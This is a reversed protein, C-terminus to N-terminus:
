RRKSWAIAPQEVWRWSAAGAALAGLLGLAAWAPWSDVGIRRLGILLPLHWLFFGYSIRGLAALPAVGLPRGIAPAVAVAAILLAFGLGIPLQGVWGVLENQSPREISVLLWRWGIVLGAGAAAVGLAVAPRRLADAYRRAGLAGLLGFGFFGTFVFVTRRAPLSWGGERALENAVVNLVVMALAIVWANRIRTRLFLWAVLPLLAYFAVEVVLTWTVPNAKMVSGAFYNQLLLPFTWITDDTPLRAGSSRSAGWLLALAGLLSLWYGPLVRAARRRVYGRLTAGFGGDLWRLLDGALLYGSLM